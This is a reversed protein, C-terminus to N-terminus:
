VLCCMYVVNARAPHVGFSRVFLCFCGLCDRLISVKQHLRVRLGDVSEAGTSATGESM